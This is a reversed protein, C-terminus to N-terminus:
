VARGTEDRIYLYMKSGGVELTFIPQSKVEYYDIM